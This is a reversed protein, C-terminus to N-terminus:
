NKEPPAILRVSGDSSVEVKGGLAEVEKTVRKLMREDPNNGLVSGWAGIQALTSDPNTKLFDVSQQTNNIFQQSMPDDYYKAWQIATEYSQAALLPKGLFLLQAIGLSRWIYYPRLKVADMKPKMTSLSQQMYGISEKPYGAFISTCVDLPNVADTFRSDQNIVTGFYIPCLEYNTAERAETDGFYQIFRLFVWDALLNNFGFAPLFRTVTLQQEAIESQVLYQPDNLHKQIPELNKQQLTLIGLIAGALIIANPLFSLLSAKLRNTM